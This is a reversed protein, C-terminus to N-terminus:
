FAIEQRLCYGSCPRFNHHIPRTSRLRSRTSDSFEFLQAKLCGRSPIKGAYPKTSDARSARERWFESHRELRQKNFARGLWNVGIERSPVTTLFSNIEGRHAVGIDSISAVVTTKGLWSAAANTRSTL